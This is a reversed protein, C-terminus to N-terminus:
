RLKSRVVVPDPIVIRMGANLNADPLDLNNRVAIVWFLEQDDYYKLALKDLRDRTQVTYDIDGISDPFNPPNFSGLFTVFVGSNGIESEEQDMFNMPSSLPIKITVAM